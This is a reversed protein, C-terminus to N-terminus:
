WPMWNEMECQELEAVVIAVFCRKESEKEQATFMEVFSKMDMTTWTGKPTDGFMQTGHLVKTALQKRRSVVIQFISQINRELVFVLPVVVM